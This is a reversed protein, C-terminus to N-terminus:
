AAVETWGYVGPKYHNNPIDSIWRKGEDTVRDGVQHLDSNLGSTWPLWQSWAGTGNGNYETGPPDEPIPQGGETKKRWGFVGPPYVNYDYENVWLEGERWAENGLRYADTAGYPQTWIPKGDTGLGVPKYHTADQDPAYVATPTYDSVFSYLQPDGHANVGHRCITGAKVEAKRDVLEAWEPYLHVFTMREADPMDPQQVLLMLARRLEAMRMRLDNSM